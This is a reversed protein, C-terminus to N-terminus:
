KKGGTATDDVQKQLEAGKAAGEKAELMAKFTRWRMADQYYNHANTSHHEILQHQYSMVHKVYTNEAVVLEYPVAPYTNNVNM